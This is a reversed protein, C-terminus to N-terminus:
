SYGPTLVVVIPGPPLSGFKPEVRKITPFQARLEQAVQKAGPVAPDYYACTSIIDNTLNGTTSVTWGGSEFRAKAQQALGHVTTNNLVVLPLRNAPATTPASTSTRTTTRATSPSLTPPNLVTSPPSPPPITRTITGAATGRNGPHQLAIVAIVLVAIGLAALAIGALRERRKRRALQRPM